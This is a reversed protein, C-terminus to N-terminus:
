GDPGLEVDAPHPAIDHGGHGGGVAEDGSDGEYDSYEGWQEMIEGLHEELLADEEEEPDGPDGGPDGGGPGAGAAAARKRPVIDVAEDDDYLAVQLSVWDIHGSWLKMPAASGLAAGGRFEAVLDILPRACIPM